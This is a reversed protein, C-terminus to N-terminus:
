SQVVPLAGKLQDKTKQRAADAEQAAEDSLNRVSELVKDVVKGPVEGLTSTLGSAVNRGTRAGDEAREVGTGAAGAASDVGRRGVEGASAMGSSVTDTVAATVGSVTDTVAATVGGVTDSVTAAAAAAVDSVPGLATAATERVASATAGLTEQVQAALGGVSEYAAQATGTAFEQAQQLEPFSSDPYKEKRQKAYSSDRLLFEPLLSWFPETLSAAGPLVSGELVRLLLPIEPLNDLKVQVHEIQLTLPPAPALALFASSPLLVFPTLIRANL